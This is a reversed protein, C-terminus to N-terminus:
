RKGGAIVKVAAKGLEEPDKQLVALMQKREEAAAAQKKRLNNKAGEKAPFPLNDIAYEGDVWGSKAGQFILQSSEDMFIPSSSHSDVTIRWDDPLQAFLFSTKEMDEPTDAKTWYTKADKAEM